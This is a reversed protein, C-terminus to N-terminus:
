RPGHSWPSLYDLIAASPLVRTRRDTAECNKWLSSVSVRTADPSYETSSEVDSFTLRDFLLKGGFSIWWVAATSQVATKGLRFAQRATWNVTLSSRNNAEFRRNKWPQYFFITIFSYIRRKKTQRKATHSLFLYIHVFLRGLSWAVCPIEGHLVNFMWSGVVVNTFKMFIVTYELHKIEVESNKWTMSKSLWAWNSFSM